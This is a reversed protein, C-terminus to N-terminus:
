ISGRKILKHSIYGGIEKGDTIYDTISRAASLVDYNVSDLRLNLEDIIRLNDFGIVGIKQQAAISYLKLAYIDTPCILANKKSVDIHIMASLMDSIAYEKGHVQVSAVFTNLRESQAFAGSEGLPPKVYILKEYGKNIVYETAETMAIANNIGVYPISKLKNGITVVPIKLSLLYNEFEEGQNIPCIVIGDVSMHYLNEICEREKQPNKDTFTVIISYGKQGCSEQIKTIIDSFYQNNLDFVVVGILMSKGGKMARAHFNPKYGYEEAVQLIKNKTAESIGKRNNLARDVTGQSVGCIEALKTTSIGKVM